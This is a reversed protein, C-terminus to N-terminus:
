IRETPIPLTSSREAKSIILMLVQELKFVAYSESNTMETPLLTIITLEVLNSTIEPHTLVSPAHILVAWIASVSSPSVGQGQVKLLNTDPVCLRHAARHEHLLVLSLKLSYQTLLHYM